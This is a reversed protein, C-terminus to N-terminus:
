AIESLRRNIVDWNLVNWWAQLYEARKNQYKLYYAHEWVDNGMLPYHGMLIPNDQNPTTMIEMKGDATRVLWVWGSGFVSLGAENFKDKFNQTSGFTGKIADAVAGNPEGGGKPKMIEWFMTHNLHGGANNRVKTRIGEPVMELNKVLQVPSMAAVEANDTAIQNLNRVYGAHHKDHHIEMTKRDIHPELANTPYPLPPLVYPGKGVDQASVKGEAAAEKADLLTTMVSALVPSLATVRLLSRRNLQLKM